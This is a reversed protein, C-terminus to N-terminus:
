IGPTLYVLLFMIKFRMDTCKNPIYIPSNIYYHRNDVFDCFSEEM